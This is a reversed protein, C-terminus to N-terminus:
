VPTQKYEFLRDRLRERRRDKRAIRDARNKYYWRQRGSLAEWTTDEPLEVWDPQPQVPTGGSAARDYTELGAISKAEDWGGVSVTKMITASAPTMELEEYQAKTPSEGLEDAARRLADICESVTPTM